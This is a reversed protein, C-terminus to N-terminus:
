GPTNTPDITPAAAPGEIAATQVVAVVPDADASKGTRSKRRRRWGYGGMGLAALGALLM